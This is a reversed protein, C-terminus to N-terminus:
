TIKKNKCVPCIYSRRKDTMSLISLEWEHNKSCKWWVKQKSGSSIETPLLNENKYYNWCESVESHNDSLSGTRKLRSLRASESGLIKACEPCISGRYKSSISQEYSHNHICKWWVKLRSKETFNEPTLNGNKEYDWEVLYIPNADKLSGNREVAAQRYIDSRNENYCDPCGTKDRGTRMSISTKWSHGKSCKWWVKKGSGCHFKEPIKDKNKEYDWEVLIEPLKFSLRNCAPCDHNKFMDSPRKEFGHGNKCSWWIMIHSKIAVESPTLQNKELDYMNLYVPRYQDLTQTNKNRSKRAIDSANNKYCIPCGSGKSVRNNIAADWTHGDICIWWFKQNTGRSFLSPTLPFNKKHDWEKAIEPHTDELTDGPPPAPLRSIMENYSDTNKQVGESLYQDIKHDDYFQGIVRILSNSTEQVQNKKEIKIVSGEIPPLGNERVRVIKIGIKKFYNNKERDKELKNQHWYQGDVEVGLNIQPIFIDCEVGDFQKRWQVEDFITRLECLLYIEIRSSQPNCEPCNSQNHTRNTVTSEWEHGYQCCWSARYSSKPPLETPNIKNKNFNWEKLLLPYAEAFSQGSKKIASQRVRNGIQKNACIPCGSGRNRVKPTAEWEHQNSCKWWVKSNSGYTIENPNIKVNKTYDWEELLHPNKKAISVSTKLRSLRKNKNHESQNCIKCGKSRVRSYVSVEYEHGNECKWWVKEKSRSGIDLPSLDGNKNIDWDKAIEPLSVQLTKKSM